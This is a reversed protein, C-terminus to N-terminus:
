GNLRRGTTFDTVGNAVGDAASFYAGEDFLVGNDPIYPEILEATTTTPITLLTTGTVSTIKLNM